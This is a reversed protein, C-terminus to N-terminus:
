NLRFYDYKMMVPDRGKGLFNHQYPVGARCIPASTYQSVRKITCTMSSRYGCGLAQPFYAGRIDFAMMVQAFFWNKQGSRSVYCSYHRVRGCIV